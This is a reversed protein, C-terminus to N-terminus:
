VRARRAHGQQTVEGEGLLARDTRAGGVQGRARDFSPSRREDADFRIAACPITTGGCRRVSDARRGPSAAQATSFALVFRGVLLAFISVAETYANTVPAADPM